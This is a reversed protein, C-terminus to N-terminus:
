KANLFRTTVEIFKAPQDIHVLHGAQEIFEFEARPFNIKIKGVDKPDIYNSKTGGIFLTPGCFKKTLINQPFKFINESLNEKLADLNIRWEFKEDANKTLNLLIFDRTPKDPMVIKLAEDAARRGNSLTLSNDLKLDRLTNLM